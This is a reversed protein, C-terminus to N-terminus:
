LEDAYTRMKKKKKHKLKHEQEKFNMSVDTYSKLRIEMLLLSLSPLLSLSVPSEIRSPFLLYTPINKFLRCKTMAQLISITFM